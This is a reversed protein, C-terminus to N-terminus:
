DKHDKIIHALMSFVGYVLLMIILLTMFVKPKNPYTYGDPLNPRSLVSLTKASKLADLKSTELQILSNKYVETDFELEMKLRGYEFLVKNLRSTDSGSLGKRKETISARISVIENRLTVIEHNSENLYASLKALEISKRTLTSELEAIISSMSEASNNPDLLLHENQYSELKASSGDMKERHKQHEVRIFSLQKRAKRRNFENLEQEVQKILAKLVAQAVQPDPHAYAIHLIGSIEDYEIRIRKRYFNLVEEMTADSSLREVMDLRDSQFHRTLDFEEDLLAYVDLSLLYEEVVKSDQLQSSPGAGLLSLELGASPPTPTLDRVILATKSEYLEVKMVMVYFLALLFATFFLARRKMNAYREQLMDYGMADDKLKEHASEVLSRTGTLGHKRLTALTKIVVTREDHKEDQGHWHLQISKKIM